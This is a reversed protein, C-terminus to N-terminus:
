NKKKASATVDEKQSNKPKESCNDCKVMFMWETPSNVPEDNILFQEALAKVSDDGAWQYRYKIKMVVDGNIVTASFSTDNKLYTGNAKISEDSKSTVHLSDKGSFTLVFGEEGVCWTGDLSKTKANNISFAGILLVVSLLNLLKM